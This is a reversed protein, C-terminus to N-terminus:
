IHATYYKSSGALKDASKWLTQAARKLVCGDSFIKYFISRIITQAVAVKWRTKKKKKIFLLRWRRWCQEWATDCTNKGQTNKEPHMFRDRSM